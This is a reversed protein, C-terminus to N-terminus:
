LQVIGNEILRERNKLHAAQIDDKNQGEYKVAHGEEIM